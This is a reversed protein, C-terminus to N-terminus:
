DCNEALLRFMDEPAGSEVFRHRFDPNDFVAGVKAILKLFENRKREPAAMLIIIRVPLGDLAEFDLGDRCRGVVIVFDRVAATRAHPIAIGSGIGTSMINERNLIATHLREPNTVVPLDSALDCLEALAESKTCSVLDKIREINFYQSIKIIAEAGFLPKIPPRQISVSLAFSDYRDLSRPTGDTFFGRM